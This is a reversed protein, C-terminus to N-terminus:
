FFGGGGGAPAPQAGSSSGGFGGGGGGLGQKWPRAVPSTPYWVGLQSLLKQLQRHGKANHKVVISAGLGQVFTGAEDDWTGPESARIVIKAIEEPSTIVTHFPYSRVVLAEPDVTENEPARAAELKKAARLKTLLESIEEHVDQTQAVVITPAPLLTGISSPGGVADWSDPAVISEILAVLSDFDYRAALSGITNDDDIEVLDRVPYLGIDLQYESEEPTTILLVEDRITSTLDLEYLMRALAFRAPTKNFTGNVPSSADLGFDDLARLDIVIPVDLAKALLEVCENLPVDEFEATLPKDLAAHVASNMEVGLMFVSQEPEEPGADNAVVARYTALFQEIQAHTESTQSVVMSDHIGEIAAPGGVEDWSNPALNGKIAELLTSFDPTKNGLTTDRRLLDGVPYVKTALQSEASEYTTIWLAGLRTMYTLYLDNLMLRLSSRNSVGGFSRTIPTAPDIGNDELAKVDLVVDVGLKMQFAACVDELPEDEFSWEGKADLAAEIRAEWESHQIVQHSPDEGSTHQPQYVVSSVLCGILLCVPGQSRLLM